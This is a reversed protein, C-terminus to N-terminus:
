ETQHIFRKLKVVVFYWYIISFLVSLFCCFLYSYKKLTQPLCHLHPLLMLSGPKVTLPTKQKQKKKIHVM